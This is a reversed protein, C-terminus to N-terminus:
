LRGNDWNYFPLKKNLHYYRVKRILIQMNDFIFPVKKLVERLNFRIVKKIGSSGTNVKNRWAGASYHITYHKKSLTGIEFMEKPYLVLDGLDQYKNNLKFGPYKQLLYYTVIYNNTIFGKTKYVGDVIKLQENQTYDLIMNDYIDLLEKIFKSKPKAGIVGMGISSNYIFNIFVENDLLPEFNKFVKVDTDLYIGGYEYLVKLRCYDSQFVWKNKSLATNCYVNDEFAFNNSNWEMIKYDSLINWSKMYDQQDRPIESNGFWCYHIIKPIKETKNEVM